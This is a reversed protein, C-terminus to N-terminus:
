CSTCDPTRKRGRHDKAFYRQAKASFRQAMALLASGNGLFTSGKGLSTSRKGFSTSGSGIVDLRQRFHSFTSGNGIVNLKQRSYSFTSGNGIVNLKQWFDTRPITPSIPCDKSSYLFRRRSRASNAPIFYPGASAALANTTRMRSFASLYSNLLM